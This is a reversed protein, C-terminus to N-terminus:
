VKHDVWIFSFLQSSYAPNRHLWCLIDYWLRVKMDTLKYFSFCINQRIRAAVEKNPVEVISVLVLIQPCWQMPKHILLGITLSLCSQSRENVERLVLWFISIFGTIIPHVLKHASPSLAELVRKGYTGKRKFKLIFISVTDSSLKEWITTAVGKALCHMETWKPM